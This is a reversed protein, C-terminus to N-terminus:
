KWLEHSHSLSLSLTHTHTHTHTRKRTRAGNMGALIIQINNKLLTSPFHVIIETAYCGIDSIVNALMDRIYIRALTPSVGAGIWRHRKGLKQLLSEPIPLQNPHQTLNPPITGRKRKLVREYNDTAARYEYFGCPRSGSEMEHLQFLAKRLENETPYTVILEPTKAYRVTINPTSGEARHQPILFARRDDLTVPRSSTSSM